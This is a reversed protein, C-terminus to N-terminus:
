TNLQNCCDLGHHSALSILQQQNSRFCEVGGSLALLDHGSLLSWNQTEDVLLKTWMSAQDLGQSMIQTGLSFTCFGRAHGVSIKDLGSIGENTLLISQVQM